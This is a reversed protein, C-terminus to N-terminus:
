RRRKPGSQKNMYLYLALAAGAALVIYLWNDTIASTIKGLFDKETSPTQWAPTAPTAKEFNLLEM